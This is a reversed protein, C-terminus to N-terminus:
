ELGLTKYVRALTEAHNGSWTISQLNSRALTGGFFVVLNIATYDILDANNIWFIDPRGNTWAYKYFADRGGNTDGTLLVIM